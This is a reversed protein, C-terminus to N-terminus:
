TMKQFYDRHLELQWNIVIPIVEPDFIDHYKALKKNYAENLNTVM